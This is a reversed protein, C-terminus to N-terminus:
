KPKMIDILDRQGESPIREPYRQVTEKQHLGRTRRERLIGTAKGAPVRSTEPQAGGSPQSQSADAARQLYRPEQAHPQFALPKLALPPASHAAPILLLSFCVAIWVAKLSAGATWFTGVAIKNTM